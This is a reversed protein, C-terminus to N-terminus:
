ARLAVMQGGDVVVTTGAIYAGADSVLLLLAGDLDSEFARGLLVDLEPGAIARHGVPEADIRAHRELVTEAPQGRKERRVLVGRHAHDVVLAGVAACHHDRGLFAVRVFEGAAVVAPGVMGISPQFRHHQRM